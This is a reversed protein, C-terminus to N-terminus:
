RPTGAGQDIGDKFFWGKGRSDGVIKFYEEVSLVETSTSWASGAYDKVCRDIRTAPDYPGVRKLFFFLALKKFLGGNSELYRQLRYRRHAKKDLVVAYKIHKKEVDIMLEVNTVGPASIYGYLILNQESHDTTLGLNLLWVEDTRPISKLDTM